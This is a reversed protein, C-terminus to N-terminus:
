RVEWGNAIAATRLEDRLATLPAILAALEVASDGSPHWRPWSRSLLELWPPQELARQGGLQVIQLILQDQPDGFAPLHWSLLDTLWHDGPGGSAVVTMKSAARQQASTPETAARSKHAAANPSRQGAGRESLRRDDPTRYASQSM